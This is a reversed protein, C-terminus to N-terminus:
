ISYIMGFKHVEINFACVEENPSDLLVVLPPVAGSNTLVQVFLLLHPAPLIILLYTLYNKTIQFFLFEFRYIYLNLTRVAKRRLFSFSFSHFLTFACFSLNNVGKISTHFERMFDMGCNCLLFANPFLLFGAVTIAVRDTYSISPFLLCCFIFCFLFLYSLLCVTTNRVQYFELGVKLFLENKFSLFRWCEFNWLWCFINMLFGMGPIVSFCGRDIFLVQAHDPAGAAINTLAWLAEVQVAPRTDAGLWGM